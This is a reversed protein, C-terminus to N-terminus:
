QGLGFRRAAAAHEAFARWGCHLVRGAGVGRDVLLERLVVLQGPLQLACANVSNSPRRPVAPRM